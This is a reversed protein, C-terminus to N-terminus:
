GSTRRRTPGRTGAPGSESMPAEKQREPATPYGPLATAADELLAVRLRQGTTEWKDARQDPQVRSTVWQRVDKAEGKDHPTLSWLVPRGLEDALRSATFYAGARGPWRAPRKDEAPKEDNEGVVPIDRGAPVKKLLAALHRLGGTNSPRGVSALGVASMTMVDSAGEVLFLPDPDTVGLRRKKPQGEPTYGPANQCKAPIILGRHGGSDQLKKGVVLRFGIGITRGKHDVEPITWAHVRKSQYPVERNYGIGPICDAVWKPLGLTQTLALRDEATLENVYAAALGSFTCVHDDTADAPPEENRYEGSTWRARSSCFDNQQLPGM